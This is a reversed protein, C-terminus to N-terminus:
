YGSNAYERTMYTLEQFKLTLKVLRPPNGTNKDFYNEFFAMDGNDGTLTEELGTLGMAATNPLWKNEYGNTYFKVAFKAPYRLILSKSNGTESGTEPLAYYKLMQIINYLTYLEEKNRPYLTFSYSFTRPTPITYNFVLVPNYLYRNKAQRAASFGGGTVMNGLADTIKTGVASLQSMGKNYQQDNDNWWGKVSDIVGTISQRITEYTATVKSEWGNEYNYTLESTPMQLAIATELKYGAGPNKLPDLKDALVKSPNHVRRPVLWKNAWEGAEKITQSDLGLAQTIDQGYPSLKSKLWAGADKAWSKGVEKAYNKLRQLEQKTYQKLFTIAPIEWTDENVGSNFQTTSFKSTNDTNDMVYIVMYTAQAQNELNHPFTITTVNKSKDALKDLIENGLSSATKTINKEVYNTIIGM